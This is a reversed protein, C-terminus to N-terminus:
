TPEEKVAIGFITKAFGGFGYYVLCRWYCGDDSCWLL